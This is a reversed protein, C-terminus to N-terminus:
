DNKSFHGTFYNPTEKILHWRVIKGPYFVLPVLHGPKIVGGVSHERFPLLKPLNGRSKIQRYVEALPQNNLKYVMIESTEGAAGAESKIVEAQQRIFQKSFDGLIKYDEVEPKLLLYNFFMSIILLPVLAYKMKQNREYFYHTLLAALGWFGFSPYFFYRSSLKPLLSFFLSFFVLFLFFFLFSRGTSKGKQSVIFYIVVLVLLVLVGIGVVLNMSYPSINLSRLITFYLKYFFDSLTLFSTYKGAAAAALQLLLRLLGIGGLSALIFLRNKKEKEYFLLPFIALIVTEKTFFALLIFILTLVRKGDFYFKLAALFLLL